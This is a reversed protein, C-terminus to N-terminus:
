TLIVQGVPWDRLCKHIGKKSNSDNLRETIVGEEGRRHGSFLTGDGHSNELKRASITHSRLELLFRNVGGGLRPSEVVEAMRPGVGAELYSM